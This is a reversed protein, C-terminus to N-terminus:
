EYAWFYAALTYIRKKLVKPLMTAAITQVKYGSSSTAPGFERTKRVFQLYIQRGSNGWEVKKISWLLSARGTPVV